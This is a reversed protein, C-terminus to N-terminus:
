YIHTCTNVLADFSTVTPFIKGLFIVGNCLSKKKFLCIYTNNLMIFSIKIEMGTSRIVMILISNLNIKQHPLIIYILTIFHKHSLTKILYKCFLFFFYPFNQCSSKQDHPKLKRFYDGM